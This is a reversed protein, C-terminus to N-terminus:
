PEPPARVLEFNGLPGPPSRPEARSVDTPRLPCSRRPIGAPRAPCFLNPPVACTVSIRRRQWLLRFVGVPRTRPLGHPPGPPPQPLLFPDPRPREPPLAKPISNQSTGSALFMSPCPPPRWLLRACIPKSHVLQELPGFYYESPNMTPQIPLLRRPAPGPQAPRPSFQLSIPFFFLVPGPQDWVRNRPPSRDRRFLYALATKYDAITSLFVLCFRGPAPLRRIEPGDPSGAGANKKGIKKGREPVM